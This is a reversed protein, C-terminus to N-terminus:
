LQSALVAALRGFARARVVEPAAEDSLVAVLVPCAGTREAAAAVAAVAPEQCRPGTMAIAHAIEDLDLPDLARSSPVALPLLANM